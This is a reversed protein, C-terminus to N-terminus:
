TRFLPSLPPTPDGRRHRVRMLNSQSAAAPRRTASACTAASRRSSASTFSVTGTPAIRRRASDADLKFLINTGIKGQARLKGMDLADGLRRRPKPGAAKPDSGGNAAHWAKVDATVDVTAAAGLALAFVLKYMTEKQASAPPPTSGGIHRCPNRGSDNQSSVARRKKDSVTAHRPAASPVEASPLDTSFCLWFTTPPANERENHSAM